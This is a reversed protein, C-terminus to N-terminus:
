LLSPTTARGKFDMWFRGDYDYLKCCRMIERHRRLSWRERVAEGTLAELRAEAKPLAAIPVQPAIHHAGHRGLDTLFLFLWPPPRVHATCGVQGAYFSWARRRAFWPIQPHTHNLFSVFGVMWNFGLFPLVLCLLVRLLYDSASPRGLSLAALQLGFFALVLARDLAARQRVRAQVPPESGIM